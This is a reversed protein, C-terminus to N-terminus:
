SAPQAAAGPRRRGVNCKAQSPCADCRSWNAAPLNKGVGLVVSTSKLPKMVHGRHLEIGISAAGALRLVAAQESIDLGPDGARLEGAMSLRRRVTEALMRDQMRRGLAFLMESAVQELALALSGRKEAFLSTTRAGVRAGLTCVGVGLATLEGSAPLLQPAHISEGGAHLTATAPRELPVINYSYAAVVLDETGILALANARLRTRLPSLGVPPNNALERLLKIGVARPM